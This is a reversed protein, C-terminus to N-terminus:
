EPVTEVEQEQEELLEEYTPDREEIVEPEIVEEVISEPEPIPTLLSVDFPEKVEQAVLEELSNYTDLRSQRDHLYNVWREDDATYEGLLFKNVKYDNAQLWDQIDQMQRLEDLRRPQLYEKVYPLDQALFVVDGEQQEKIFTYGVVQQQENFILKYM